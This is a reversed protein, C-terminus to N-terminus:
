IRLVSSLVIRHLSLVQNPSRAAWFTILSPNSPGTVLVFPPPQLPRGATCHSQLRVSTIRVDHVDLLDWDPHILIAAFLLAFLVFIVKARKTQSFGRV